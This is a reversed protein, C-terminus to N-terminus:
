VPMRMMDQYAELVKNRVQITLNLALTAKESAIMVEAVDSVEGIALQKAATTADNQATEVKALADALYQGFDKAVSAPAGTQLQEEPRPSLPNQLAQVSSPLLVSPIPNIRIV